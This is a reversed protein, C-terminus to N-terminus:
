GFAFGNAILRDCPENAKAPTFPRGSATPATFPIGMESAFPLIDADSLWAKLALASQGPLDVLVRRDAGLARDMIQDASEPKALNVSQTCEGYSRILVGHSQDADVGAFPIQRDIFWQALVRAVVSKGVGGKEGGVFHIRSM